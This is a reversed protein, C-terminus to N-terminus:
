FGASGSGGGNAVAASTVLSGIPVLQQLFRNWQTIAAPGVWVVDGARVHFNDAL